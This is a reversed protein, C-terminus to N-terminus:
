LQNAFIYFSCKIGIDTAWLETKIHVHSEHIQTHRISFAFLCFSFCFSCPEASLIVSYWVIQQSHKSIHIANFNEVRIHLRYMSIVNIAVDLRFLHLIAFELVIYGGVRCQETLSLHATHIYLAYAYYITTSMSMFLIICAYIIIRDLNGRRLCHCFVVFYSVFPPLSLFFFLRM